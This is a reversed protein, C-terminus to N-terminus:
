VPARPAGSDAGSEEEAENYRRIYRELGARDVLLTGTKEALDAASKTYRTNTIVMKVDANYWAAAAHVEQVAGNPVKGNVSYRKTQVVVKRGDKSAVIDAGQDGAKGVVRVDACGNRELVKAVFYQFESGDLLDAQFISLMGAGDREMERNQGVAGGVPSRTGSARALEASVLEMLKRASVNKRIIQDRVIEEAFIRRLEEDAQPHRQAFRRVADQLTKPADFGSWFGAM